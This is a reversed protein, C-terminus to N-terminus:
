TGAMGIVLHREESTGLKYRDITVRADYIQETLQIITAVPRVGIHVRKTPSQLFDCLSSRYPLGDSHWISDATAKGATIPASDHIHEGFNEGVVM